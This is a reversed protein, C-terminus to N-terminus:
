VVVIQAPWVVKKVVCTIKAKGHSLWYLHYIIKSVMIVSHWVCQPACDLPFIYCLIIIFVNVDVMEFKIGSFLSSVLNNRHVKRCSRCNLMLKLVKGRTCNIDFSRILILKKRKKSKGDIFSVGSEM